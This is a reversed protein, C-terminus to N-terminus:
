AEDLIDRIKLLLTDPMISKFLFNINEEFIGKKHIIDSTYGSIFLVKTDPSAQQILGYVVKGNKRPMIIDLIVLDIQGSHETFQRIADDGDQAQIVHYGYKEFVQGM